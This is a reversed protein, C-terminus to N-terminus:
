TLNDLVIQGFCHGPYTGLLNDPYDNPFVVRGVHDFM